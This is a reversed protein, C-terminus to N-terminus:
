YNWQGQPRTKLLSKNTRIKSSYIMIKCENETKCLFSCKLFRIPIKIFFQVKKLSENRTRPSNVVDTKNHNTISYSIGDSRNGTTCCYFFQSANGDKYKTRDNVQSKQYSKKEPLRVGVLRDHIEDESSEPTNRIRYPLSM